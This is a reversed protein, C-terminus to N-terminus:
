IGDTKIRCAATFGAAAKGIVITDVSIILNNDSM